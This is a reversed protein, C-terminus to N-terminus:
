PSEQASGQPRRTQAEREKPQQAQSAALFSRQAVAPLEQFEPIVLAAAAAGITRQLLEHLQAQWILEREAAGTEDGLKTKALELAASKDIGLAVLQRTGDEAARD